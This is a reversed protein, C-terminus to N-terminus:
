YLDYDCFLSVDRTNFLELLMVALEDRFVCGCM